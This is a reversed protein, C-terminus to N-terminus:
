ILSLPQNDEGIGVIACLDPGLENPGVEFVLSLPDDVDFHLLHSRDGSSRIVAGPRFVTSALRRRIVAILRLDTSRWRCSEPLEIALTQACHTAIPVRITRATQGGPNPM